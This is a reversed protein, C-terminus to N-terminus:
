YWRLDSGFKLTHSGATRSFIDVLQMVATQYNSLTGSSNGIQQMGTLTFLPLANNFAANTPIGPIGLVSSPTGDLVIGAIHNSRRTYGFRLDNLMRSGFIHMENAVLQQGLVNALGTVNNTGLVNGSIAGSGDPLPTAPQDVDGFYSYRVFGLDSRGFKGDVRLDFQSQHDLDEGVRTYNNAAGARTPLPYRSLLQVAVPDLATNIADDPFETRLYTGGTYTTTAPDYIHAVGTFIGNREAETPVTSTRVVGVDQRQGQFDGFYFLHKRVIPGGMTGGYQNRRFKPKRATTSAFYNRANIDENRVFEYLSGHFQETGGKTTLNIVGGNFRGFEAPVANTEVSFEQIDDVIPFFAVQGPEPQLASIGDFLYENTRPRGGNIRPLQTGQPLAVGPAFTTLQVFNRGNLPMAPIQEGHITSEVDSSVSQLHADSASVLVVEADAGVKLALDLRVRRGAEVQVDKGVPEKFSKASVRVKYRGPKLYLFSYDGTSTTLAGVSLGTDIETATVRAQVIAAGTSDTVIGTLEGGGAQALLSAPAGILGVLLAAVGFRRSLKSSGSQHAWEYFFLFFGSRLKLLNRM